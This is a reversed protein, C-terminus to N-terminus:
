THPLGDRDVLAAVVAPARGSAVGAELLEDIANKMDGLDKM